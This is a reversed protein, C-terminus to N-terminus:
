CYCKKCKIAVGFFLSVRKLWAHSLQVQLTYLINESSPWLDNEVLEQYDEMVGLDEEMM